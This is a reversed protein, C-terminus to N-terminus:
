HESHGRKFISLPLFCSFIAVLNNQQVLVIWYSMMKVTLSSSSSTLVLFFLYIFLSFFM